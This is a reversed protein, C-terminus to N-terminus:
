KKRGRKKKKEQEILQVLIKVANYRRIYSQITVVVTRLANTRKGELSNLLGQSLFIKTKGIVFDAKGNNGNTEPSSFSRLFPLINNPASIGLFNYRFYFRDSDMKQPYGAKRLRVTEM